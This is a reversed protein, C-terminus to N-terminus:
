KLPIRFLNRQDNRKIFVYRSPSSGPAVLASEIWAVGPVTKPWVANGPSGDKPLDPFLRGAPVPVVMTRVGVIHESILLFRRDPSWTAQCALRCLYRSDGDAIAVAITGTVSRGDPHFQLVVWRGDPSVGAVSIVPRDIIRRRDSGDLRIREVFNAQTGLARFILDNEAGFYVSDADNTVLRPASTRDLAALWVQREGAEETAFAVMKDDASLSFEVIPVDPLVIDTRGTDVDIVALQPRPSGARALLCYVRRGDSSLRPSFM